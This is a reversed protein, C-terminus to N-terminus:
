LVVLQLVFLLTSTLLAGCCASVSWRAIVGGHDACRAMAGFPAMAIHPLPALLQWARPWRESWPKFEPRACYFAAITHADGLRLEAEASAEQAPIGIALVEARLDEYHDALEAALRFARQKAMGHRLLEDILAGAHSSPM